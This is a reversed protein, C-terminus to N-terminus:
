IVNGYLANPMTQRLVLVKNITPKATPLIANPKTNSFLM